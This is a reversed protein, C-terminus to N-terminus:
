TARCPKEPLAGAATEPRYADEPSSARAHDTTAHLRCILESVALAGAAYIGAVIALEVVSPRYDRVVGLPSPSLGAAIFCFGKEVLVSVFVGAASLEALAPRARLTPVLLVVLSAAMLESALYTWPVLGSRGDLGVYQYALHAEAEPLGSYLATFAELLALFVSTVAAYTMLTFLRRTAEEGIDFVGARALRSSLLLLLAPGSAFATAIFRPALVATMWGPRAALGAYLLATVIHIAFAWPVTVLALPRAWRPKAQGKERWAVGLGVVSLAWYVSLTVLDWFM